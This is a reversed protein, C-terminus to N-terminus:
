MQPPAQGHEHHHGMMEHEHEAMMADLKKQQEATLLGRIQSAFNKHMEMAKAHRDEKSLTSDQHLAEMQKQQDELIPKIKAQQDATLNLEKTLHQMHEAASPPGHHWEGHEHAPQSGSPATNQQEQWAVSYKIAFMAMLTLLLMIGPRKKM